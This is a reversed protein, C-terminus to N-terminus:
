PKLFLERAKSRNQFYLVAFSIWPLLLVLAAIVSAEQTYREYGRGELGNMLLALLGSACAWPISWVSISLFPTVACTLYATQKKAHLGLATGASILAFFCFVYAQSWADLNCLWFLHAAYAFEAVAMIGNQWVLSSLAKTRQVYGESSQYM